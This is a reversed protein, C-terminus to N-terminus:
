ENEKPFKYIGKPSGINDKTVGLIGELLLLVFCGWGVSATAVYMSAHRNQINQRPLPLQGLRAHLGDEAAGKSAVAMCATITTIYLYPKSGTLLYFEIYLATGKGTRRYVFNSFEMGWTDNFCGTTTKGYVDYTVHANPGSWCEGWFQIGFYVWGRKRVEQFLLPIHKILAFVSIYWGMKETLLLM